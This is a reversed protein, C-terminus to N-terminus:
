KKKAKVLIIRQINDVRDIELGSKICIEKLEEDTYGIYFGFFSLFTESIINPETSLLIINGGPKVVKIIEDLLSQIDKEKQFMLLVAQDAINRECNIKRDKTIIVPQIVKDFNFFAAFELITQLSASNKVTILVKGTDGVLRALDILPQKIPDSYFLITDGKNVKYHDFLATRIGSLLTYMAPVVNFLMPRITRKIAEVGKETIEYYKRRAARGKKSFSNLYESNELKKLAPYVQGTSIKIDNVKMENIIEYGYKPRFALQLLLQLQFWGIRDFEDDEDIGSFEKTSM